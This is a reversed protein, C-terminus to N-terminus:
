RGGLIRPKPLRMAYNKVQSPMAPFINIGTMNEVDAVTTANYQDGPANAVVYCGAQQQQPDYLCKFLGTPIAVRGKLSQLTQGQFIPGTVVYVQRRKKAEYRAASEIGSWIGRNNEPDQPVINSLLFSEDRKEPPLDRNNVVHGRDYGSRSYHQLESREGALLRTDSRFNDQRAYGRGEDIDQKTLLEAGWLPTRTLGSHGIAFGSNCLQRYKTTLTQSTLIPAQGGAFFQPCDQQGLAVSCVLISALFLFTASINRSNIRM